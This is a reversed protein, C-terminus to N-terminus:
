GLRVDSRGLVAVIICRLSKTVRACTASCTPCSGAAAAAASAQRHAHPGAASSHASGLSTWGLGTTYLHSCQPVKSACCLAACLSTRQCSGQEAHQLRVKIWARPALLRLTRVRLQTGGDRDCSRLMPRLPAILHASPLPMFAMGPYRCAHCPACSRMGSAGSM